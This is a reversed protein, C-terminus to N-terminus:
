MIKCLWYIVGYVFSALTGYVIVPGAITFMKVGIGLIFGEPKFEIAPSVVSNAFGTIPVLTGAGAHKAIKEFLKLGTLLAAIFILTTSVCMGVTKENFGLYLYLERFLQGIVCIIGGILFASVFDKGKKSPPSVREVMKSYKQKDMCKVREKM